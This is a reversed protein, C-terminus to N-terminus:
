EWQDGVRAPRVPSILGVSSQQPHHEVRCGRGSQEVGNLGATWGDSEDARVAARCGDGNSVHQRLEDAWESWRMERELKTRPAVIANQSTSIESSESRKRAPIPESMGHQMFEAARIDLHFRVEDDVDGAISRRTRWPFRFPRGPRTRRACACSRVLVRDTKPTLAGVRLSARRNLL